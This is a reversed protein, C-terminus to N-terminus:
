VFCWLTAELKMLVGRRCLWHCSVTLEQICNTGGVAGQQGRDVIVGFPMGGSESFEYVMKQETSTGLALNASAPM